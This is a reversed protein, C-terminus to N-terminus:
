IMVRRDHERLWEVSKDMNYDTEELAKRCDMMGAGTRERLEKILPVLFKAYHKKYEKPNIIGFAELYNELDEIVKTLEKNIKCQEKWANEYLVILEKDTKPRTKSLM